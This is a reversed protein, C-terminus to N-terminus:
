KTCVGRWNWVTLCGIRVGASKLPMFSRAGSIGTM